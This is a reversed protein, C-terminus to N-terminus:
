NRWSMPAPSCGFSRRHSQISQRVTRLLDVPFAAEDIKLDIAEFEDFALLLQEGRAALRRDIQELAAMFASLTEPTRQAFDPLNAARAAQEM